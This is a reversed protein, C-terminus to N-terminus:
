PLIPVAILEADELTRLDGADDITGMGCELGIQPLGAFNVRTSIPGAEGPLVTIPPFRSEDWGFLIQGGPGGNVTFSEVRTELPIPLPELVCPAQFGNPGCLSPENVIPLEYTSPVGSAPGLAVAPGAGGDRVQVTVSLDTLTLETLGPITSIAANMFSPPFLAIGTLEIDVPDGNVIPGLPTVTLEYPLALTDSTINNNCLVDIVRNSPEPCSPREYEVTLPLGGGPGSDPLFDYVVPYTGTDVCSPALTTVGVAPDFSGFEPIGIATFEGQVTEDGPDLLVAFDYPGNGNLPISVPIGDMLDPDLFMELSGCDQVGITQIPGLAEFSDSFLRDQRILCESGPKIAAPAWELGCLWVLLMSVAVCISRMMRRRVAAPIRLGYMSHPVSGGQRHPLNELPELQSEEVAMTHRGM